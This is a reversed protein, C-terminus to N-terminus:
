PDTPLGSRRYTRFDAPFPTGFHNWLCLPNFLIFSIGSIFGIRKIVLLTFLPGPFTIRTASRFKGKPFANEVLLSSFSFFFRRNPEATPCERGSGRRRRRPFPDRRRFF